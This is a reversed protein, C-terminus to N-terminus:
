NAEKMKEIEAKLADIESLAALFETSLNIIEESYNLQSVKFQIAQWYAHERPTM